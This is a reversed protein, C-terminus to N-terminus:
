QKVGPTLLWFESDGLVMNYAIRRSAANGSMYVINTAKIGLPEPPEGSLPVRWVEDQYTGEPHGPARTELLETDSWWGFLAEADARSAPRVRSLGRPGLPVVHIPAPSEIGECFVMSHGNPSVYYPGSSHGPPVAHVERQRGTALDLAVIKTPKPILLERGGPMWALEYAGEFAPHTLRLVDRTTGGEVDAVTLVASLRNVDWFALRNSDHSWAPNVQVGVSPKFARTVRGDRDEVRVGGTRRFDSWALWRGDPSWAPMMADRIRRPTQGDFRGDPGAEVVMVDNSGTNVAYGFTDADLFGMSGPEGLDRRLVAPSSSRRGDLVPVARLTTGDSGTELYLVRGGEPSWVPLSRHRDGATDLLPWERGTSVEHVIIDHASGPKSHRAMAFAVFRGDPSISFASPNVQLTRLTQKVATDIDVAALEFQM